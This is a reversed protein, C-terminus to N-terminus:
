PAGALLRRMQDLSPIEEPLPFTILKSAKVSVAHGDRRYRVKGVVEIRQQWHKWAQALLKEDVECRIAREELLDYVVFQMKDHSDLKELRGEISGEEEYAPELLEKATQVIVRGVPVSMETGSWVRIRPEVPKWKFTNALNKSFEIAKDTFAAPRLGRALIELGNTLEYRIQNLADAAILSPRASVGIGASGDYVRITWAKANADPKVFRSVEKVLGSFAECAANFDALSIEEEDLELTIDTSISDINIAM